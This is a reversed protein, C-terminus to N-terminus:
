SQAKIRDIIQRHCIGLSVYVTDKPVALCHITDLKTPEHSTSPFQTVYMILKM